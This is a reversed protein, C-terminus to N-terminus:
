STKQYSSIGTMLSLDIPHIYGSTSKLRNFKAYLTKICYGYMSEFDIDYFTNMLKKKNFSMPFRNFFDEDNKFGRRAMLNETHSYMIKETGKPQYRFNSYKDISIRTAKSFDLKPIVFDSDIWCFNETVSSKLCVAKLKRYLNKQHFKKSETDSFPIHIVGQLWEPKDGVIVIENYGTCESEIAFLVAKLRNETNINKDHTIVIDLM